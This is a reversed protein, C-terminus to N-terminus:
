RDRTQDPGADAVLPEDPGEAEAHLAAVEASVPGEPEMLQAEVESEDEPMREDAKGGLHNDLRAQAEPGEGNGEEAPEAAKKSPAAPHLKAAIRGQCLECFTQPKADLGFLANAPFLVCKKTPCPPLGIAMGVQDIAETVARRLFKEADSPKKYYDERLRTLAMVAIGQGPQNLGFVFNKEGAFMDGDVVGLVAVLSDRKRAALLNLLRDALYQRRQDSYMETDPEESRGIHVHFQYSKRLAVAIEGLVEVLVKGIPILLIEKKTERGKEM